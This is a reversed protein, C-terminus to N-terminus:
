FPMDRDCCKCADGQAGIKSLKDRARELTVGDREDITRLPSYVEWILRKAEPHVCKAHCGSIANSAISVIEYDSKMKQVIRLQIEYDHRLKRHDPTCADTTPDLKKLAKYTARYGVLAARTNVPTKSSTILRDFTELKELLADADLPKPM